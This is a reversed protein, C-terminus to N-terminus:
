PGNGRVSLAILFTAGVFLSLGIISPILTVHHLITATLAVVGAVPVGVYLLLQILRYVLVHEEGLRMKLSADFQSWLTVIKDGIRRLRVKLAAIDAARERRHTEALRIREEEQRQSERVREVERQKFHAQAGPQFVAIAYFGVLLVGILIAGGSAVMGLMRSQVLRPHENLSIFVQGNEHVTIEKTEMFWFGVAGICGLIILIIGAVKM